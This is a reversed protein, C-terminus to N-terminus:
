LNYKKAELITELENKDRSWYKIDKLHIAYENMISYKKNSSVDKFFIKLKNPIDNTTYQIVYENKIISFVNGINNSLFDFLSTFNKVRYFEPTGPLFSNIGIKCEVIVFDNMNPTGDNLTEFIKYKTIM